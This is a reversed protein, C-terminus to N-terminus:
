YSFDAQKEAYYRTGEVKGKLIGTNGMLGAIGPLFWLPIATTLKASVYTEREDVPVGTNLRIVALMRSLRSKGPGHLMLFIRLHDRYTLKVKLYDSLELYGDKTLSIMDKIAHEVGYLLAGAVILLPNGNKSNKLLGEMTRIALRMAFIEGYAAAINGQPSHFGYLIYEIEQSEVSFDAAGSAGAGGGSSDITGQLEKLDFHNFYGTIYEAQFLNDSMSDMLAAIGGYFSDMGGMAAGGAEYPDSKISNKRANDSDGAQNMDKNAKYFSELLDFQEQHQQSEEKLNDIRGLLGKAEDLKDEAKKETEKREKDSGRYEEIIAKIRQLRNGSGADAFETLYKDAEKRAQDVASHLASESASASLLSGEMSLFASAAGSFSIVRETQAEIGASIDNLLSDSLLLKRSQARLPAIEEKGSVPLSEGSGVKNYAEQEPRQEAKEILLLMEANLSRIEQLLEKAKSLVVNHLQKAANNRDNMESFLLSASRQYRSIELAYSDDEDQEEGSHESAERRAREAEIMLVYNSYGSVLQEATSLGSQSSGSGSGTRPLLAALQAASQAASAQGNLLEDLKAERRDYLKQLKGLLDVTNSAEKMAESMPKFRNIIDISFDIPARYKMQERIQQEFVEYKGLQRGLEVTSEDLRVDVIPFSDSRRMYNLQDSLVKSMLYNEDTEGFAFLGYRELLMPDYASLVSRSASRVLLETKAQLASMRAFDIFIAVFAFVAAFIMILFVSVSGAESHNRWRKM